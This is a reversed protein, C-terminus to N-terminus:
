APRARRSWGTATTTPTPTRSGRTRRSCCTSSAGAPDQPQAPQRGPVVDGGGEGLGPSTISGGVFETAVPTKDNDGIRVDGAIITHIDGTIFVVNDIKRNKIHQLLETREQPYGQWPDFGIYNGGPYVTRMIMAQNAMIKWTAPTKALRNKIFGM